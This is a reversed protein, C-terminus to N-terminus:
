GISLFEKLVAMEFADIAPAKESDERSEVATSLNYKVLKSKSDVAYKYLNYAPRWLLLSEAATRKFSSVPYKASSGDANACSSADEKRDLALKKPNDFWVFVGDNSYARSATAKNTPGHIEQAPRDIHIKRKITGKKYEFDLARTEPNGNNSRRFKAGLMPNQDWPLAKAVVELRRQFETNSWEDELQPSISVKAPGVALVFDAWASAARNTLTHDDNSDNRHFSLFLNFELRFKESGLNKQLAKANAFPRSKSFFPAFGIQLVEGKYGRVASCFNSVSKESWKSLLVAQIGLKM